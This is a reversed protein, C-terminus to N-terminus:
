IVWHIFFSTVISILFCRLSFFYYYYYHICYAKVWFKKKNPVIVNKKKKKKLHRVKGSTEIDGQRWTISPVNKYIVCETNSEEWM